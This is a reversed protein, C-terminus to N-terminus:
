GFRKSRKINKILDKHYNRATSEYPASIDLIYNTASTMHVPPIISGADTVYNWNIEWFNYHQKLWAIIEAFPVLVNAKAFVGLQQTFPPQYLYSVGFKTRHTIPFVWSYNEGTLANWQPCISDLYFSRAYILGHPSRSVCDDWQQKDIENNKLFFINTNKQM